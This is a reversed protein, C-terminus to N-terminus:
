VVGMQDQISPTMPTYFMQVHQQKGRRLLEKKEEVWYPTHQVMVRNNYKRIVNRPLDFDYEARKDGTADVTVGVRPDPALASLAGIGIGVKGLTPLLKPGFLFEPMHRQVDRYLLKRGKESEVLRSTVYSTGEPMLRRLLAASFDDKRGQIAEREMNQLIIDSFTEKTLPTDKVKMLSTYTNRIGDLLGSERAENFVKNAQTMGFSAFNMLKVLFGRNEVAKEASGVSMAKLAAYGQEASKGTMQLTEPLEKNLMNESMSVVLQRASEETVLYRQALSKGFEKKNLIDYAQETINNLEKETFINTAKAFDESLVGKGSLIKMALNDGSKEKVAKDLIADAILTRTEHYEALSAVTVDPRVKSFGTEALMRRELDTLEVEIEGKLFRDKLRDFTSAEGGPVFPDESFGKMMVDFIRHIEREINPVGKKGQIAPIQVMMHAFNSTMDYLARTMTSNAGELEMLSQSALKTFWTYKYLRGTLTKQAMSASVSDPGRRVFELAEQYVKRAGERVELNRRKAVELRNQAEQRNKNLFDLHQRGASRMIEPDMIKNLFTDEIRSKSRSITFQGSDTHVLIEDAKGGIAHKTGEGKSSVYVLARKRFEEKSIGEPRMKDIMEHVKKNVALEMAHPDTAEPLLNQVMSRVKQSKLFEDITQLELEKAKLPGAVAINELARASAINLPRLENGERMFMNKDMAGALTDAIVTHDGLDGVKDDILSAYLSVADGDFDRDSLFAESPDMWLTEMKANAMSLMNEAVERKETDSLDASSIKDIFEKTILQISFYGAHKSQMNPFAQMYGYFLGERALKYAGQIQRIQTRSDDLVKKFIDVQKGFQQAKSKELSSLPKEVLQDLLRTARNIREETPIPVDDDLLNKLIEIMRLSNSDNASVSMGRGLRSFQKDLKSTFGIKDIREGKELKNLTRKDLAGKFKKRIGTQMLDMWSKNQKELAKWQDLSTGTTEKITSRMAEMARITKNMWRHAKTFEKGEDAITPVKFADDNILHSRIQEYANLMKMGISKKLKPDYETLGNSKTLEKLQDFHEKHVEGMMDAFLKINKDKSGYEQLQNVYLNVKREGTRLERLIRARDNRNVIAQANDGPVKGAQLKRTDELASGFNGGPEDVQSVIVDLMTSAVDTKGLAAKRIFSRAAGKEISINARRKTAENYAFESYKEKYDDVLLDQLSQKMGRFAAKVGVLGGGMMQKFKEPHMYITNAKIGERGAVRFATSSAVNAYISYPMRAKFASGLRSKGSVSEGTEYILNKSVGSIATHLGRAMLVSPNEWSEDTLIDTFSRGERNELNKVMRLLATLKLTNSAMPSAVRRELAKRQATEEYLNEAWDRMYESDVPFDEKGLKKVYLTQTRRVEGAKTTSIPSDIPHRLDVTMVGGAGDINLTPLENQMKVINSVQEDDFRFGRIDLADMIENRIDIEARQVNQLIGTSARGHAEMATSSFDAQRNAATELALDFTEDVMDMLRMTAIDDLDKYAYINSLTEVMQSYTRRAIREGAVGFGKGLRAENAIVRNMQDAIMAPSTVREFNAQIIDAAYRAQSPNRMQMELIEMPGILPAGELGAKTIKARGRVDQPIAGEATAISRILYASKIKFAGREEPDRELVLPAGLEPAYKRMDEEDIKSFDIVGDRGFTGDVTDETKLNNKKKFKDSTKEHIKKVLRPVDQIRISVPNKSYRKFVEVIDGEKEKDMEEAFEKILKGIEDNITPDTVRLKGTHTTSIIDKETLVKGSKLILRVYDKSGKEPVLIQSIHEKADDISDLGENGLVMKEFIANVLKKTRQDAVTRFEGGLINRKETFIGKRTDMKMITDIVKNFVGMTVQPNFGKKILDQGAVLDVGQKLASGAVNILSNSITSTDMNSDLNRLFVRDSMPAFTNKDTTKMTHLWSIMSNDATYLKVKLPKNSYTDPDMKGADEIEGTFIVSHKGNSSLSRPDDTNIGVAKAEADSLDVINEGQAAAKLIKKKLRKTMTKDINISAGKVKRDNVMSVPAGPAGSGTFKVEGLNDLDLEHEYKVAINEFLRNRYTNYVDRIGFNRGKTAPRITTGFDQSTGPYDVLLMGMPAYNPPPNKIVGAQIADKGTQSAYRAVDTINYRLIDPDDALDELKHKTTNNKNFLEALRIGPMVAGRAGAHPTAVSGGISPALPDKLVMRGKVFSSASVARFDILEDQKDIGVVENTGPVQVYFEKAERNAYIVTEAIEDQIEKIEKGKGKMQLLADTTAKTQALNAKNIMRLMSVGRQYTSLKAINYHEVGMNSAVGEWTVKNEFKKVAKKGHQLGKDLQNMLDPLNNYFNEEIVSAPTRLVIEGGVSDSFQKGFGQAKDMDWMPVIWRGTPSQYPGVQEAAAKLLQDHTMTAKKVRGHASRGMNPDDKIYPLVMSRQEGNYRFIVEVTGMGTEYVGNIQTGPGAQTLQEGFKDLMRKLPGKIDNHINRMGKKMFRSSSKQVVIAQRNRTPTLEDLTASGEASVYRMIGPRSQGKMINTGSFNSEPTSSILSELRNIESESMDFGKDAISEVEERFIESFSRARDGQESPLLSINSTRGLQRSYITKMASFYRTRIKSQVKGMSSMIGGAVPPFYLLLGLDIVDGTDEYDVGTNAWVPNNPHTIYGSMYHLTQM